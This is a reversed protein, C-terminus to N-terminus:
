VLNINREMRSQANSFLVSIKYLLNFVSEVVDSASRCSYCATAGFHKVHYCIRCKDVLLNPQWKKPSKSSMRTMYLLSLITLVQGQECSKLCKRTLTWTHLYVATEDVNLKQSNHGFM